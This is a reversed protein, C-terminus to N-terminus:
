IYPHIYNCMVNWHTFTKSVQSALNGFYFSKLVFKNQPSQIRNYGTEAITKYKHDNDNVIMATIEM